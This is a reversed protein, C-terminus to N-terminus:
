EKVKYYLKVLQKKDMLVPVPYLPNGEQNAYTAMQDIDSEIIGPIKRPINMTANMEYIWAIFKKAAVEKSDKTEAIGCKKALVSLRKYVKHGYEELIIPLLIANALGHPLHYQGGLSHAIAHIYGVYSKTFAIGAYHAAYLMGKRDEASEPHVYCNLLHKHILCVAEISMKKTQPTRSKGIFAEVAHTLADMGTTSTISQPLTLTMHYDLVAYKPILSFDNIPYKHHTKSDVIVAALTTESGTGATTPVAFLLPLKKRVHLLGKMKKVSKKPRVIRAGMAKALDMPSGGGVAVIAQCHEELYLTRAEEVQDITPNPITKDYASYVIENDVLIKYFEDLLHNRQIGQDTIICIHKIKKSKLIPIIDEFTSLIKPIRYPLFPIAIKMVLQFSRCYIKKFLNM